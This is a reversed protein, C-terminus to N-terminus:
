AKPAGPARRPVARLARGRVAAANGAAADLAVTASAGTASASAAPVGPILVRFVAGEGVTSTVSVSGGLADVLQRVISVGLGVGGTSRTSSACLQRFAEFVSEM